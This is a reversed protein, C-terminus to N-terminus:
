KRMKDIFISTRTIKVSASANATIIGVQTFPSQRSSTRSHATVDSIIEADLLEKLVAKKASSSSVKLGIKVSYMTQNNRTEEETSVSVVDRSTGLLKQSIRKKMQTAEDYTRYSFM